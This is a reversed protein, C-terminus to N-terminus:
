IPSLEATLLVQEQLSGLNPKWLGCPPKYGHLVCPDLCRISIPVLFAILVCTYMCVFYVYSFSWLGKQKVDKFMLNQPLQSDQSVIVSNLNMQVVLNLYSSCDIDVWTDFTGLQEFKLIQGDDLCWGDAVSFKSFILYTLIGHAIWPVWMIATRLFWAKPAPSIAWCSLASVMRGSTRLEIGLLWTTAWLLRHSRIGEEPMSIYMCIFCENYLIFLDNKFLDFEGFYQLLWSCLPILVWLKLIIFGCSFSGVTAKIQRCCLLM